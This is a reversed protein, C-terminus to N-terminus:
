RSTIQAYFRFRCQQKLSISAIHVQRLLLCHRPHHCHCHRHRHHHSPHDRPCHRHNRHRHHRRVQLAGQEEHAARAGEEEGAAAM